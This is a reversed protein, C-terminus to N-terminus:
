SLIIEVFQLKEFSYLILNILNRNTNKSILISKNYKCFPNTSRQLNVFSMIVVKIDNKYNKSM